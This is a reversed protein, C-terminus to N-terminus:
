QEQVHLVVGLDVRGAESNPHQGRHHDEERVERGANVDEDDVYARVVSIWRPREFTPHLGLKQDADSGIGM